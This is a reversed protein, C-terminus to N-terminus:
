RGRIDALAEKVIEGASKGNRLNAIMAKKRRGCGCDEGQEADPDGPSPMKELMGAAANKAAQTVAKRVQALDVM